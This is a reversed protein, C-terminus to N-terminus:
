FFLHGFLAGFAFAAVLTGWYKAKANPVARIRADAEANIKDWDQAM